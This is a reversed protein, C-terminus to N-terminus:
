SPKKGEMKESRLGLAYSSFSYTELVSLWEGSLLPLPKELNYHYIHVM